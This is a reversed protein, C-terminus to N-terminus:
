DVIAVLCLMHTTILTVYMPVTLFLVHYTHPYIGGGWGLRAVAGGYYVFVVFSFLVFFNQFCFCFHKFVFLQIPRKLFSLFCSQGYLGSSWEGSFLM